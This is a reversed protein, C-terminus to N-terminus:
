VGDLDQVQELLRRQREALVKQPAVDEVGTWLGLVAQPEVVHHEGSTGQPELRVGWAKTSFHTMCMRLPQKNMMRSALWTCLLARLFSCITTNTNNLITATTPLTPRMTSSNFVNHIVVRTTPDISQSGCYMYESDM